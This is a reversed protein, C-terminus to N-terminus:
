KVKVFRFYRTEQRVQIRAARLFAVPIDYYQGVWHAASIVRSRTKGTKKDAALRQVKKRHKELNYVRVTDQNYRPYPALYTGLTGVSYTHSGQITQVLRARSDSTVRVPQINLTLKM